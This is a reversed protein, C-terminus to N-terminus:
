PPLWRGCVSKLMTPMYKNVELINQVTFVTKETVSSEREDLPVDNEEWYTLEEDLIVAADEDSLRNGALDCYVTTTFAFVVILALPVVMFVIMWLLYPGAALRSRFKTM